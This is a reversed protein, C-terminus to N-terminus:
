TRSRTNTNPHERDAFLARFRCREEERMGERGRMGQGEGGRVQVTWLVPRDQTFRGESEVEGEGGGAGAWRRAAEKHDGTHGCSDDGEERGRKRGRMQAETLLSDIAGREVNRVLGTGPAAACEAQRRQLVPQLTRYALTHMLVLRAHTSPPSSHSPKLPLSLVRGFRPLTPQCCTTGGWVSLCLSWVRSWVRGRGRGWGAYERSVSWCRTCSGSRLQLPSM